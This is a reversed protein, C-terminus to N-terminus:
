SAILTGLETALRVDAVVAAHDSGAAIAPELLYAVNLVEFDRTAWISDYRRPVGSGPVSSRRGTVHSVELPGGPRLGRIAKLEDPRTALFTRLVDHLDHTVAPGWLVDDGRDGHLGVSGTRWHTLSDHFDIGDVEPTNADAGVLVPGEHRVLWDSFGVAQDAKIRGWSVGPPAHYSCVTLVMGCRDVSALVCREPLPVVTLVSSVLPPPNRGVIACGQSRVPRDGDQPVRLGRPGGGEVLWDMGATDLLAQISNPNAEQLLVLDPELSALFSGQRKATTGRRYAINWSVIRM